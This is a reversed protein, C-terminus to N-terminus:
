RLFYRAIVEKPPNILISYGEINTVNSFQIESYGQPPVIYAAKNGTYFASDVAHLYQPYRGPLQSERCIVQENSYFITQWTFMNNTCYAYHVGNDELYNLVYHLSRERVPSFAFDGFTILAVIGSVIFLSGFGYVVNSRVATTNFLLLLAVLTYGTVPLLYRPQYTVAYITYALTVFVSLVSLNFLLNGNGKTILNRVALFFLSFVIITFLIAFLACFFNPQQVDGFYYNGHLSYYLFSPIRAIVNVLDSGPKHIPIVGFQHLRQKYFHFVVSLVGVPAGFFLVAKKSKQRSLFFAVFPILGPLWIPQSEYVFYCLIGVWLFLSDKKKENFLLYLVVSSLAFSTLYGGRAKMSWVAWAPSLVLILAFLLPLWQHSKCIRLFAKYLMLVGTTWLLLMGLKVSLASIGLVGYFPIIFLCEVLSFGYTQGYFFLPFEKGTFIHKAMIAVVCEDGDLLLKDTMLQPIRSAICIVALAFLITHQNRIGM